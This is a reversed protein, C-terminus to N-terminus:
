MPVDVEVNQWEDVSPKFGGGNVIPKPLPLGDLVIHVYRPDAANDVQDTVNFTYYNKSGDAMIVYIVLKHPPGDSGTQGFVLFDATLTSIGDSVVSFPVTVREKTLENGGLLLGGSM